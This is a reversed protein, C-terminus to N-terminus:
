PEWDVVDWIVERSFASAWPAVGVLLDEARQLPYRLLWHLLRWEIQTLSASEETLRGAPHTRGTRRTQRSEPM